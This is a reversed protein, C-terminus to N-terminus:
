AYEREKPHRQESYIKAALRTMDDAFKLAEEHTYTNDMMHEGEYVSIRVTGNHKWRVISTM